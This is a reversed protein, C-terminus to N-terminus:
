GDGDAEALPPPDARLAVLWSWCREVEGELEDLGGANDIVFDAIALREDRTMQAAVRAEADAREFGRHAVLRAVAVDTPCDVVIVAVAGRKQADGERLLPIDLVVINDTAAEALVLRAMEDRVAPHVLQNLAALEDSDNFVIDAVAQRDLSRDPALIREGWREVMAAHVPRGVRQLDKVVADADVIVAGRDALRASASSKGAGIGGTLAVLLM